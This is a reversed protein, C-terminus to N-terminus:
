NIMFLVKKRKKEKLFSLLFLLLIPYDFIAQSFNILIFIVFFIFFNFVYQKKFNMLIISTYLFVYILGFNLAASFFGVSNNEIGNKQALYNREISQYGFGVWPSQMIVDSSSIVHNKRAIFSYNDENIKETISDSNLLFFLTLSILPTILLFTLISKLLEKRNFKKILFYIILISLIIYGIASKTTLISVIFLGIIWWDKKSLIMKRKDLLFILGLNLFIQYGGPEWFIGSNRGQDLALMNFGLFNPYGNMLVTFPFLNINLALLYIILSYVAICVMVKIYMKKFVEFQISSIFLVISLTNMILIIYSTTNPNSMMNFLYNLICTIIIFFLVLLNQISIAKKTFLIFYISLILSFPITIYGFSMGVSSGSNIILLSVLILAILKNFKNM